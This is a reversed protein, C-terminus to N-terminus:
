WFLTSLVINPVLANNIYLACKSGHFNFSYLLLLLQCLSPKHDLAILPGLRVYVGFGIYLYILGIFICQECYLEHKSRHKSDLGHNMKLVVLRLYPSCIQM